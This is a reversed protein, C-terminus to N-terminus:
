DRLTLGLETRLQEVLGRRYQEIQDETLTRKRPRLTVRVTLSSEGEELPPGEYRDVAQFRAEAPAKLAMLVELVRSFPVQPTMVLALDRTVPTQRSLPAYQAVATGDERALDLDIEAVFCPQGLRQRVGPHLAGARAVTRGDRDCWAATRGPHLGPLSDAARRLGGRPRVARLVSEVVGVLDFVDVERTATSWHRPQGAGSWALGLRLPEHPFAGAATPLFVRGLEFLRVNEVGRRLNLDVADVLGPLISRRLQSLTETIPNSLRIPPSEDASAPALYPLDADDAIMAYGFAEHFGLQALRDAVTRELLDADLSEVTPMERGTTPISDYGIHRAVEEVLDAERELDVRWSPVQVSLRTEDVSRPALQLAALADNVREREPQYGLLRGLQALRLELARSERPRPHADILGPAATGEALETLLRVALAQAELVGAPDAGREFRHSAETQLALRRATSRVSGPSFWAAEILVDRTSEGIETAAGGMVGAIGVAGSGDAIVLMEDDLTRTEGDLTELQEGSEARRVALLGDVVRAHDYFHIPNGTELLVLNSIDVANNISRMGCSELRRRVWDPSPGVRVGRVLRVTFRACLEDDVIEVRADEDIAPGSEAPTGPAVRQRVGFAASLERALGLHGLCDPRNAPVDIELVHDDNASTLSDVTLGRATLADAIEQPDVDLPCLTRLWELSALM